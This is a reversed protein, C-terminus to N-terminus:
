QAGSDQSVCFSQPHRLGCDLWTNVTLVIEATKAQTVYDVVVDFGNWTAYILDAWSGFIVQDGPVQNTAAARYSNVIGDTTDDNWNGAEWLSRSSVTTAGTLAVATTKWRGRVNPTTLYAMPQRDANFKGLQTEFAVVNAFTASGGFTLTSVGPTNLIGLPESNAGQGNLLLYDHKIGVIRFVDNRILNEIDPTSQFVLQKGYTVSAGVRKPSLAIQGLTVQSSALPAIEAVTQATTPADERPIVANGQLGAMPTAGLRACAVRNYLLEITPVMVQTAVAAGGAAFVEATMDRTQLRNRNRMTIAIEEPLWFGEARQGCNQEVQQCVDAEFSPRLKGSADVNGMARTLSFQKGIQAQEAADRGAYHTAPIHKMKPAPNKQILDMMSRKFDAIDTGELLARSSLDKIEGAIHEHDHAIMKSIEIIETKTEKPTMNKQENQINIGSRGVGTEFHDAGVATSTIEHARWAFRKITRGDKHRTTSLLKTTKYGVSIDNRLGSSMLEWRENGLDTNAFSLIARGKRAGQDIWAKVIGGPQKEWNHEDLFAGGQLLSLDADAPNHSLVEYYTETGDKRLATVIFLM